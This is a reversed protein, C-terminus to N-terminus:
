YLALTVSHFRLSKFRLSSRQLWIFMSLWATVCKPSFLYCLYGSPCVFLLAKGKGHFIQHPESVLADKVFAEETVSSIIVVNMWRQRVNEYFFNMHNCLFIAVSFCKSIYRNHWNWGFLVFLHISHLWLRLITVQLTDSWWSTQNHFPCPNAAMVGGVSKMLEQCFTYILTHGDAWFKPCVIRSSETASDPFCCPLSLRTINTQVWTADDSM